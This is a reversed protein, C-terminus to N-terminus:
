GMEFEGLRYKVVARGGVGGRDEEIVYDENSERATWVAADLTAHLTEKYRPPISRQILRFSM